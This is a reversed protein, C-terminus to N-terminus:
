FRVQMKLVAAIPEDTTPDRYSALISGDATLDWAYWARPVITRALRQGGADYLDWVSDGRHYRTVVNLLRGQPLVFVGTTRDHWWLYPRMGRAPGVTGPPGYLSEERLEPLLQLDEAIRAPSALTDTAFRVLRLPAGYSFLFGEPLARLAGGASQIRANDSIIAASPDGYSELWEGTAAYRHLHRPDRLRGGSVVFSGDSLVAISKPNSVIGGDLRAAREFALAQDFFLVSAHGPDYLVFGGRPRRTLSIPTLVEGPGRGDRAFRSVRRAALDWRWVAKNVDDSILVVGASAELMGGITGFPSTAVGTSRQLELLEITQARLVHASTALMLTCLLPRVSVHM